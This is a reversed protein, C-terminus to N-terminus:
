WSGSRARDIDRRTQKAKLSQRKDHLKKGRALAIELKALGRDNLFLRLPVITLGKTKVKKEWKVAERKKILLKRMRTPVHNTYSGYEYEAIYMNLVYLEGKRFMCYAEAINARGARISKIETGQLQIGAVLTEVFEYEHYAKKNKIHIDSQAM